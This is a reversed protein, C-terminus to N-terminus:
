GPAFGVSVSSNQTADGTHGREILLVADVGVLTALLDDSIVDPLTQFWHQPLKVPHRCCALILPQQM